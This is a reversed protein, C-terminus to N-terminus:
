ADRRDHPAHPPPTVLSSTAHAENMKGRHSAARRASPPLRTNHATHRSGGVQLKTLRADLGFATLFMHTSFCVDAAHMSNHYPNAGYHAQAHM